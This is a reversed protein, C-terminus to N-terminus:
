IVTVRLPQFVESGIWKDTHKIRIEMNAQLSHLDQSLLLSLKEVNLIKFGQKSMKVYAYMSAKM